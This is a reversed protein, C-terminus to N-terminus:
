LRVDLNGGVAPNLPQAPPMAQLLSQMNTKAQDMVKKQLAFQVTSTSLTAAADVNM